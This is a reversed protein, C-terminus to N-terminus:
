SKNLSEPPWVETEDSVKKSVDEDSLNMENMYQSLPDSVSEIESPSIVESILIETGQRGNSDIYTEFGDEGSIRTLTQVYEGATNLIQEQTIPLEFGSTTSIADEGLHGVTLLNVLREYPEYEACYIEDPDHSVELLLADRRHRLEATLRMESETRSAWYYAHKERLFNQYGASQAIENIVSNALSHVRLRAPYGHETTSTGGSDSESTYKQLAAARDYEDTEPDVGTQLISSLQDRYTIHYGNM